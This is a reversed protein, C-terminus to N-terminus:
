MMGILKKNYRVVGVSAHKTMMDAGMNGASIKVFYLEKERFVRDRVFHYRALIQKTRAHYVPNHVIDLAPQSDVLVKVPVGVGVDGQMQLQLQRLFSVEQAAASFGMYESECSSLSANGLLKSQWSVPGGASLIVFAARSRSTDPCTLHSSDCYGWLATSVGKKFCIGEGSTGQLYRLVHQVGEWHAMGPNHNFPSLCSVAASIDPRTCIALYMLSGIASRYPIAAMTKMDPASTPSDTQSLKCGPPLPTSTARPSVVPYRLLVEGLYKEQLLQVDGGPLRRIEMGLLFTAAGLDKMRFRSHLFGKVGEILEMMKGIVFMDDVFLGLLIRRGGQHIAYVCFDSTLRELGFESLAKDVHLNWMRPSQKLGYLAKFLRLVKGPMAVGFMGEPIELYVEEELNAYLFATTVDLQEMHMGESAAAALMLRISEFRVTPSYTETYDIGEAQMFGRAVLRAKYKEVEGSLGRKRKFVWKSTIVPHRPRDVVAFVKNEVLSAVEAACAELWRESDPSKIAQKFTKPDDASSEMTALM